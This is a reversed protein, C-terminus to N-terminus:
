PRVYRFVQSASGDPNLLQLEVAQGPQIQRGSKKAILNTELSTKDHKIKPQEVGNLLLRAGPQIGQGFVVLKKGIVSASKIRLAAPGLSVRWVGRGHTFAFLTSMNGVSGVSLSETVVNAFGTNERAWSAGGDQSVFVGVDTGIYLTQSNVPDVAITHVPVDPLGTEGAGDIGAWTAGGDTSKWVHTGGFTSYTAYAVNENSPDFTLWSVFGARPQAGAWQTNANSTLANGTRHIFGGNTGALVINSNTPAVAIASVSRDASLPASAQGWSAAEDSTRWM